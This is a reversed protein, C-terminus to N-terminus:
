KKASKASKTSKRTKKVGRNYTIDDASWPAKPAEKPAEEATEEPAEEATEEHAEVQSQKADEFRQLIASAADLTYYDYLGSNLKNQYDAVSGATTKATPLYERVISAIAKASLHQNTHKAYSKLALILTKVHGRDSTDVSKASAEIKTFISM